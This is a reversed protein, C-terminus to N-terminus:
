NRLNHKPIDVVYMDVGKSPKFVMVNQSRVGCSEVFFVLLIDIVSQVSIWVVFLLMWQIIIM